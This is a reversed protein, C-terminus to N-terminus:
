FSKFFFSEIRKKGLKNSAKPPSTAQVGNTTATGNTTASGNVTATGNVQEAAPAPPIPEPSPKKVERQVTRHANVACEEMAAAGFMMRRMEPDVGFDTTPKRDDQKKFLM